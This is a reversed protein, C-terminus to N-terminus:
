ECLMGAPVMTVFPVSTLTSSMNVVPAFSPYFCPRFFAIGCLESPAIAGVSKEDSSVFQPPLLLTKQSSIQSTHRFIHTELTGDSNHPM